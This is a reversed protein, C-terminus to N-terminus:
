AAKKRRRIFGLGALGSGLLLMTSPEPVFTAPAKDSGEGTEIGQYEFGRFRAVFFQAGGGGAYSSLEDTFNDITLTDFSSGTLGFSFLGTDGFGIGYKPNGGGLWSNKTTVGIDFDGFPSSSVEDSFSSGGLLIGFYTPNSTLLVGSILGGPNNFAFATLFGTGAPSTNTLSVALTASGSDIFTYDLTGTFSGLGNKGTGVIPVGESLQPFAAFLLLTSLYATFIWKCRSERTM